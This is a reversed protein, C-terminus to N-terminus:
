RFSVSINRSIIVLSSSAAGARPDDLVPKRKLKCCDPLKQARASSNLIGLIRLLNVNNERDLAQKRTIIM